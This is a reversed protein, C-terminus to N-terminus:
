NCGLLTISQTTSTHLWDNWVQHRTNGTHWLANRLFEGPGTTSNVLKISVGATGFAKSPKKEWYAQSVQEEVILIFSLRTLSVSNIDESPQAPRATCGDNHSDFPFNIVRKEPRSSFYWWMGANMVWRSGCSLTSAGVLSIPSCLVLTTTMETPTWMFPWVSTSQVSNTM